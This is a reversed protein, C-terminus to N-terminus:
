SLRAIMRDGVELGVCVILVWADITLTLASVILVGVNVAVVIATHVVRIVVLAVLIIQHVLWIWNMISVAEGLTHQFDNYLVSM